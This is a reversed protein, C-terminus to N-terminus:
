ADKLLADVLTYDFTGEQPELLEWYIPALVTNVHMQQLKPWIPQMYDM